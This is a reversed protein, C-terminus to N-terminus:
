CVVSPSPRRGSRGKGLGRDIMAASPNSDDYIVGLSSNLGRAISSGFWDTFRVSHQATQFRVVPMFVISAHPGAFHREGVSVITGPTRAGQQILHCHTHGNLGAFLVFLLGLAFQMAHIRRVFCYAM